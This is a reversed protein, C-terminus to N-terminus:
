GGGKKRLHMAESLTTQTVFTKSLTAATLNPLCSKTLKLFPPAFDPQASEM